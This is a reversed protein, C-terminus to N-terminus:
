ARALLVLGSFRRFAERSKKSSLRAILNWFWAGKMTRHLRTAEEWLSRYVAERWGYPVFFGTSEAPGFRFPVGSAALKKGWTKTMRKLLQPSALDILWEKFSAQAHLDTALAAVQEASLYVLLGETVVLANAAGAGLRSFLERRVAADTMDAAVAEYRCVPVEDKLMETKYGLIGPLDVDVWHLAPPLPLRWPRADLGAALNVVLDTQRNRIADLIIEDFVATRVIMPWALARGQKMDRVIDHGRSGALRDAFPDRFIADPRANEMARYVAVWRATDSINEIAM